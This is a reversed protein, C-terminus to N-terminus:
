IQKDSGTIWNVKTVIIIDEVIQFVIGDAIVKRYRETESMEEPFLRVVSKCGLFPVSSSDIEAYRLRSDEIGQIKGWKRITRRLSVLGRCVDCRTGSGQFRYYLKFIKWEWHVSVNSPNGSSLPLTCFLSAICWSHDQQGLSKSCGSSSRVSRRPFIIVINVIILFYNCLCFQTADNCYFTGEWSACDLIKGNWTVQDKLMVAAARGIDYTAVFKSSCMFIGKLHGKKLPQWM